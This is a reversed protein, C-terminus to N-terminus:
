WTKTYRQYSYTGQWYRRLGSPMQNVTITGTAQSVDVM